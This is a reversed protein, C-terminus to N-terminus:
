AVILQLIGLLQDKITTRLIAAEEIDLSFEAKTYGPAAEGGSAGCNGLGRLNGNLRRMEKFGVRALIDDREGYFLDL